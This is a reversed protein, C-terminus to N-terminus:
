NEGNPASADPDFDNDFWEKDAAARECTYGSYFESIKSTNVLDASIDGNPNSECYGIIDNITKENPTGSLDEIFDAHTFSASSMSIEKWTSNNSWEIKDSSVLKGNYSQDDPFTVEIASDNVISGYATPRDYASMDVTFKTGSQSIDVKHHDSTEWKGELDIVTKSSDEDFNQAVVSRGVESIYFSFSVTLLVAAVATSVLISTALNSM